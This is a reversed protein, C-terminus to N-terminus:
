VNGEAKAIAARAKTRAHDLIPDDDDRWEEAALEKLAELLEPAAAILQTTAMVEYPNGDRSAKAIEKAGDATCIQDRMLPNVAWPGPTHKIESM